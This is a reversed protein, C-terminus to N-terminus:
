LHLIDTGSLTLSTGQVLNEVKVSDITTSAATATFGIFYDQAHLNVISLAATIIFIFTLSKM